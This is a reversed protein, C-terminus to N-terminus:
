PDLVLEIGFESQWFGHQGHGDLGSLYSFAVGGLLNLRVGREEDISVPVRVGTSVQVGATNPPVLVFPDATGQSVVASSPDVPVSITGRVAAWPVLYPNEYALIVGADPAIFGGHVHGGAGLGAVFALHEIPAYKLGLRGAGLHPSREDGYDIYAYSAEAQAEVHEVVGYRVRAAAEAGYRGIAQHPGAAAQVALDGEDLTASSELPLTRAPPSLAFPTCATALLAALPAVKSLSAFRLSM